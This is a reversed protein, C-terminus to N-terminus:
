WASVLDWVMLAQLLPCELWVEFLEQIPVLYWVAGWRDETLYIWHRTRWCQRWKWHCHCWFVYLKQAPIPTGSRYILDCLKQWQAPEDNGQNGRGDVRRKWAVSWIITEYWIKRRVKDVLSSASRLSQNIERPQAREPREKFPRTILFGVLTTM